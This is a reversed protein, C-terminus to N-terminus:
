KGGARRKIEEAARLLDDGSIADGKPVMLRAAEVTDRLFAFNGHRAALEGLHEWMEAKMGELGGHTLTRRSIFLQVDPLAPAGFVIYAFCRNHRLQKAEQWATAQLKRWLTSQGAIVFASQTQNILTKLVNLGASTMHHSEDIALLVRRTSLSDILRSLRAQIGTPLNEDSTIGEVRKLLDALMSNVNKWAENGEAVHVMGPLRHALARLAQTKGSGSDGEVIVLRNIGRRQLLRGATTLLEHTPALDEFLPEVAEREAQKEALSMAGEYKALWVAVDLQTADRNILKKFTKTSGLAPYQKVFKEDSLGRALQMERLRAALTFLSETEDARASLAQPELTLQTSM